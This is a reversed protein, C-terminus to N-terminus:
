QAIGTNVRDKAIIFYLEGANPSVWRMRPSPIFALALASIVRLAVDIFRAQHLANRAAASAVVVLLWQMHVRSFKAVRAVLVDVHNVDM